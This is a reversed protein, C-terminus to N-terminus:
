CTRGLTCRFVRAKSTVFPKRAVRAFGRYVDFRLTWIGRQLNRFPLIKRFPTVLSGCPGQATGIRLTGRFHGAPDIYHLYVSRRVAARLGFISPVLGLTIFRGRALDARVATANIFGGLPRRIVGFAPANASNVGDSARLLYTALVRSSSLPPTPLPFTIAGNADAVVTNLLNGGSSVQVESSPKFGSGNVLFATGASRNRKCPQDAGLTAAQASSGALAGLLSIACLARAFRVFM